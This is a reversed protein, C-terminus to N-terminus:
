ASEGCSPCRFGLGGANLIVPSCLLDSGALRSPSQGESLIGVWSDSHPLIIPKSAACHTCQRTGWGAKCGACHCWFTAERVEPGSNEIGCVPCKLAIQWGLSAQELENRTADCQPVRAEVNRIAETLLREEHGQRKAEDASRRRHSRPATLESLKHRLMDAKKGPAGLEQLASEPLDPAILMWVQPDDTPRLSGRQRGAWEGLDPPIRIPTPVRSFRDSFIFWNIARAVDDLSGVRWPSVPLMSFPLRSAGDLEHRLSSLRPDLSRPRDAAELSDPFLVLCDGKATSCEAAIGDLLVSRDEDNMSMLSAFIPLVKLRREGCTLTISRSDRHFEVRIEGCAPHRICIPYDARIRCLGDMAEAGCRGCGQIVLLLSFLDFSEFGNLMRAHLEAPSRQNDGGLFGKIWLDRAQRYRSDNVLINTSPLSPPVQARRPIVRYLESDTMGLVRYRLTTLQALSRRAIQLQHEEDYLDALLTYLRNQRPWLATLLEGLDFVEEYLMVLRRLERTRKALYRECHDVLRAVVRNEFLDLSEDAVEALIRKPRPGALTPQAWDEPHAALHSAARQPIRKARSTQVRELELVLNSRPRRCVDVLAPLADRIASDLPAIEAAESIGPMVPSADSWDKWSSDNESFSAALMTMVACISRAHDDDILSGDPLELTEIHPIHMPRVMRRRDPVLHSPGSIPQGNVFAPVEDTHVMTLFISAWTADVKIRGGSLRSHLGPM